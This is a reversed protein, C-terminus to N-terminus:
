ANEGPGSKDEVASRTYEQADAPLDNFVSQLIGFHTMEDERLGRWFLSIDPQDAFLDELASYIDAAGSEIRMAM